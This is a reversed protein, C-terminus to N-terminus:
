GEAWDDPDDLSELSDIARQERESLHREPLARIQVQVHRFLALPNAALPNFRDNLRAAYPAILSRAEALSEVSAGAPVITSRDIDLLALVKLAQLARRTWEKRKDADLRTLDVCALRTLVSETVLRIDRLEREAIREMLRNDVDGM